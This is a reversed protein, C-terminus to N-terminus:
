MWLRPQSVVGSLLSKNTATDLQCPNSDMNFCGTLIYTKPNFIGVDTRIGPSATSGIALMGHAYDDGWLQCRTPVLYQRHILRWLLKIEMTLFPILKVFGAFPSQVKLRILSNWQFSIEYLASFNGLCRPEYHWDCLRSSALFTHFNSCISWISYSIEPM